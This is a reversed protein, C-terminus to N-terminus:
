EEAWGQSHIKPTIELPISHLISISSFPLLHRSLWFSPTRSLIILNSVKLRDKDTVRKLVEKDTEEMAVLGIQLLLDSFLGAFWAINGPLLGNMMERCGTKMESIYVDAQSPDLVTGRIEQFARLQFMFKDRSEERNNFLVTQERSRYNHRSDRSENFPVTLFPTKSAGAISVGASGNKLDDRGDVKNTAEVLVRLRSVTDPLFENMSPLMVMKNVIIESLSSLLPNELKELARIAFERCAQPSAFIKEIQNKEKLVMFSLPEGQATDKTPSLSLLRLLLHLELPVSPVLLNSILATYISVTRGLSASDWARTERDIGKRSVGNGHGTDNCQCSPGGIVEFLEDSKAFSGDLKRPTVIEPKSSTPIELGPPPPVNFVSFPDSSVGRMGMVEQHSGIKVQQRNLTMSPPRVNLALAGPDESPLKAINGRIVSTDGKNSSPAIGAGPWPSLSTNAVSSISVPRIRRKTNANANTEKVKQEKGASQKQQVSTSNEIHEEVQHKKKKKKKKKRPILVNPALESVSLSAAGAITSKLSPFADEYRAPKVPSTADELSLSSSASPPALSLLAASSRSSAMSQRDLHRRCEDRIANLIAFAAGVRNPCRGYSGAHCPKINRGDAQRLLIFEEGEEKIIEGEIWSILMETENESSIAGLVREPTCFHECPCCSQRSQGEEKPKDGQRDENDGAM